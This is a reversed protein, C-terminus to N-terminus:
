TVVDNSHQLASFILAAEHMYNSTTRHNFPAVVEVPAVGQSEHKREPMPSSTAQDLM